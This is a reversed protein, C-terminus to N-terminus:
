RLWVYIFIDAAVYMLLLQEVVTINIIQYDPFFLTMFLNCFIFAGFYLTVLMKLAIWYKM